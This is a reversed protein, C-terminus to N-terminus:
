VLEAHRAWRSRAGAIHPKRRTHSARQPLAHEDRADPTRRLTDSFHYGGRDSAEWRCHHRIRRDTSRGAALNREVRDSPQWESDSNASNIAAEIAGRVREKIKADVRFRRRPADAAIQVVLLLKRVDVEDALLQSLGLELLIDATAFASEATRPPSTPAPLRRGDELEISGSISLLSCLIGYLRPHGLLVESLGASHLMGLRLFDDLASIEAEHEKVASMAAGFDVIDASSYLDAAVSSKFRAILEQAKQETEAMRTDSM